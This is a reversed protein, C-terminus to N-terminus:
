RAPELHTSGQFGGGLSKCLSVYNVLLAQTNQIGQRQVALATRQADLFELYGGVGKDYRSRTVKAAKAAESSASALASGRDSLYARDALADQVERLAILVQKDYAAQAETFRARALAEAAALRGGDLVPVSVTPGISFIGSRSRLLDDLERSSVGASGTLRITPLRSAQAVGVQASASELLSWYQAVDPRRGLVESPVDAPPLPVHPLTDLRSLKFEAAPVGVLVAISNEAIERRRQIDLLDAKSQALDTQSRIVDLEGTAGAQFRRHTLAVTQSRLDIASALLREEATLTQSTLYAAVLDATLSLLAVQLASDSAEVQAKASAVALRVRGWLDLEYAMEFPARFTTAELTPLRNAVTGSTRAHVVSAGFNVSPTRDSSATTLLALAQDHRALAIKLDLNSERLRSVLEDLAPDGFVQWWNNDLQRKEAPTHRFATPPAASRPPPPAVSACSALQLVAAAVLCRGLLSNKDLRM